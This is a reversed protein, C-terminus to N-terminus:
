FLKFSAADFLFYSIYSVKNFIFQMFNPLYMALLVAGSSILISIFAGMNFGITAFMSVVAFVAALIIITGILKLMGSLLGNVTTLLFVVALIIGGTIYLALKATLKFPLLSLKLLLM